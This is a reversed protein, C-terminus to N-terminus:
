NSVTLKSGGLFGHKATHKEEEMPCTKNLWKPVRIEDRGNNVRGDYRMGKILNLEKGNFLFPTKDM